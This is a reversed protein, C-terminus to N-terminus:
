FSISVTIVLQFHYTPESSICEFTLLVHDWFHQFLLSVPVYDRSANTACAKNRLCVLPFFSHNSFTLNLSNWNSIIFTRINTNLAISRGIAKWMEIVDIIKMFVATISTKFNLLYQFVFFNLVTRLETGFHSRNVYVLMNTHWACHM